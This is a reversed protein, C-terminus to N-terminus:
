NYDIEIDDEKELEEENEEEKIKADPIFNIDQKMKERVAKVLEGLLKEDERLKVMFNEQGVVELDKFAYKKSSPKTVVGVREAVSLADEVKDIGTSYKLVFQAEVGQNTTLKNKKSTIKIIHGITHEGKKIDTGSIKKMCLRLVCAHRLSNGGPTSEPPPGHPSFTGISARMQNLFIVSCKSRALVPTLKRLAPTLVKAIGAVSTSGAEKDAEQVSPLAAISDYVILSVENTSALVDIMDLAQELTDPQCYILEDWNVGLGEAWQRTLSNEGDIFACKKGQKQFSAITILTFATKGSSEKGHIEMMRGLPIGGTGIALDFNLCGSSITETEISINESGKFISTQGYKKKIMEMAKDLGIEKKEKKEKEEKAM